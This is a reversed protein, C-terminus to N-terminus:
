IYVHLMGRKINQMHWTLFLNDGYNLTLRQFAPKVNQVVAKMSASDIIKGSASINVVQICSKFHMKEFTTYLM